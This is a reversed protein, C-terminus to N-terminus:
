ATRRARREDDGDLVCWKAMGYLRSVAAAGFQAVLDQEGLNTTIVTPRGRDYRPWIIEHMVQRTFPTSSEADPDGLDDILLVEVEAYRRLVAGVGGATAAATAGLAAPRRSIADYCERMLGRWTVFISEATGPIFGEGCFPKGMAALLGTKARGTRGALALGPRGTEAVFAAHDLAFLRALRLAERRAPTTAPWTDFSWGGLVAEEPYGRALMRACDVGIYGMEERVADRAERCAWADREAQSMSAFETPGGLRTPALLAEAYARSRVLMAEIDPIPYTPAPAPRDVAPVPAVALVQPVDAATASPFPILQDAM